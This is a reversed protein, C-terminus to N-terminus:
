KNEEEKQKILHKLKEASYGYRILNPNGVELQLARQRLKALEEKKRQDVSKALEEHLEQAIRLEKKHRKAKIRREKEDKEKLINGLIRERDSNPITSDYLNKVEEETYLIRIRYDIDDSYNLKDNIRAIAQGGRNSLLQGPKHLELWVSPGGDSWTHVIKFGVNQALDRVL